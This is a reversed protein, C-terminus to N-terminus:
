RISSICMSNQKRQDFKQFKTRSCGVLLKSTILCNPLDRMRLIWRVVCIREQLYCQFTNKGRGIIRVLEQLSGTELEPTIPVSQVLFKDRCKFDPPPDEKMPQLIVLFLFPCLFSHLLPFYGLLCSFYVTMVMCMLWPISILTNWDSKM